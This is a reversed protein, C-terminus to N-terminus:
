PRQGGLNLRWYDLEFPPEDGRAQEVLADLFRERLAADPFRALWPHLVVREIFTRFSAADPFRTPRAELWTEVEAFGAAHLRRAASGPDAFHWPERWGDFFRAREPARCLERARDHLRRLNEGGGCQAVIRGGPRLARFLRAFLRDHDPVWHFTATSFIADCACDLDLGLLDTELFEVRPGFRPSLFERATALMSPSQDVAIVRGRPLREILLATLRGTGCGADMVTEDGALALRALVKLGWEFQPESVRHYTAADWEPAARDSM